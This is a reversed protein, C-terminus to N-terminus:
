MVASRGRAVAATHVPLSSLAASVAEADIADPHFAACVCLAGGVTSSTVTIGTQTAPDSITQSIARSPDTFRTHVTQPLRGVHSHLLQARHGNAASSPSATTHRAWRAQASVAALNAIPRGSRRSETLMDQLRRAPTDATVSFMLGASFPALTDIRAPLYPRVDFPITVEREVTIGVATLARLLGCTVIAFMSVGPEHRDRVARLRDMEGRSIRVARGDAASDKTPGLSGAPGDPTQPVPRRRHLRYLEPLRRPDSGFTRVGAAVLPSVGHRYRDWYPDDIALGGIVVDVIAQSFAVDGLGHSFDIAVMEGALVVRLGAEPLGRAADILRLPDDDVDLPPQTAVSAAREPTVTQWRVEHASPALGLRLAPGAAAMAHLREVVVERAPPTMPGFVTASRRRSHHLDVAAVRTGRERARSRRSIPFVRNM